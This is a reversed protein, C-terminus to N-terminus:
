RASVISLVDGHVREGHWCGQPTFVIIERVYCPQVQPRSHDNILLIFYKAFWM